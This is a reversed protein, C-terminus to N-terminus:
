DTSVADRAQQANDVILQRLETSIGGPLDEVKTALRELTRAVKAVKKGVKKPPREDDIAKQAKIVAKDSRRLSTLIPGKTRALKPALEEAPASLVAGAIRDLRCRVADLFVLPTSICGVAATCTDTTCSDGDDCVTADCTCGDGTCEECVDGIGNGNSDQQGPNPITPCNDCLSVVNDGDPDLPGSVVPPPIEAFDLRSLRDVSDYRLTLSRSSADPCTNKVLIQMALSEGQAFTRSAEPGSVALPVEIPTSGGASLPLLTTTIQGTALPDLLGGRQRFLQVTVDACGPMAGDAGTTIVLSATAAGEPLVYTAREPLGYFTPFGEERQTRVNIQLDRETTRTPRCPYVVYQSGIGLAAVQESSLRRLYLTPTDLARATQACLGIAALGLLSTVRYM